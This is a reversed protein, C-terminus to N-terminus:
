NLSPSEDVGMLERLKREQNRKGMDLGAEFAKQIAVQAIFDIDTASFDVEIPVPKGPNIIVRDHHQVEFGLQIYREQRARLRAHRLETDSSKM